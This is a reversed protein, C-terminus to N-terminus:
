RSRRRPAPGCPSRATRSTPWRGFATEIPAHAVYSNLYTQKSSPAALKEGEAMDGSEHGSARRRGGGQGSPRLDIKDDLGAAPLDFEAKVLGTGPRGRRSARAARRGHRRGKGRARRGERGRATDVTKLKAGHAPPRLMRAYLMGPLCSTAPMSRRAPSRTWRTRARRRRASWRFIGRSDKGPVNALHREIRKGQVLQAYTVCKSRAGSGGGRRSAGAARGGARQAAGGGDAAARGASRRRGGRVAPRLHAHDHLRVHGHGVPVFRHRGDGHGGFRLSVDLEDALLEALSTMAGPGDRGQRRSRDGPRRRRHAPLRQFGDSLGAPPGGSRSQAGAARGTSFLVLALGPYALIAAAVDACLQYHPSGIRRAAEYAGGKM